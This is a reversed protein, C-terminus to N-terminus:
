EAQIKTMNKTQKNKFKITAGTANPIEWALSQIRAAAVVINSGKGWWALSSILGVGGCHGSSAATLNKFWQTM